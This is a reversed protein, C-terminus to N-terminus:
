SSDMVVSHNARNGPAELREHFDFRDNSVLNVIGPPLRRNFGFHPKFAACHAAPDNGGAGGRPLKFCHLQAIAM